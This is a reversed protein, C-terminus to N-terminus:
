FRVKESDIKQMAGPLQSISTIILDAKPAKGGFSRPGSNDLLIAKLGVRKAGVVDEEHNDGVMVAEHAELGFGKLAELFIAPHPKRKGIDSSIYFGQFYDVLGALELEKVTNRAFSNSVIALSYRQRLMSLTEKSGPAAKISAAYPRNFAENLGDILEEPAEKIGLGELIGRYWNYFGAEDLNGIADRLRDHNARWAAIYDDLGVKYGFSSLYNAATQLCLEQAEYDKFVITKHVDFFIAKILGPSM